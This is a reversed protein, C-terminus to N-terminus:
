SCGICTAKKRGLRDSLWAAVPSAIIQPIYMSAIILGLRRGSPTGFYENWQPMSQLGTLLASDYGVSYTGLYMFAVLICNKRLGPDRYWRPHTNNNWVVQLRSDDCM